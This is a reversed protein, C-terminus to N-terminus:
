ITGANSADVNFVKDSEVNSDCNMIIFKGAHTSPTNMAGTNATAQAYTAIASSALNSVLVTNVYNLM